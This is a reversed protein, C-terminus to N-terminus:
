IKVYLTFCQDTFYSLTRVDSFIDGGILFSKFVVSGAVNLTTISIPVSFEM